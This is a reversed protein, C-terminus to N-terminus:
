RGYRMRYLLIAAACSVNLSATKGRMPLAVLMDCLERTLRHLGEEEGGLVLAAPLTFDVDFADHEADGAAGYLWVGMEKLERLFSPIGPVRLIPIHEAAGASARATVASLGASRRKPVVVGHAGAAEATRIVAGLNREDQIGDCVVLFLKEEGAKQLIDDFTGYAFAAVTAIVGQHTGTQSLRDLRQKDCEVVAAGGERAEGILGGLGKASSLVYLKDIPRGASLAEAVARRGEIQNQM